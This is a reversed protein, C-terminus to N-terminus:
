PVVGTRAIKGAHSRSRVPAEAYLFIQGKFPLGLSAALKQVALDKGHSSGAAPVIQHGAVGECSKM